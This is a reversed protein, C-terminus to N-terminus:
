PMADALAAPEWGGGLAKAFSVIAIQTDRAAGIRLTEAALLQRQQGPGVGPTLVLRLWPALPDASPM